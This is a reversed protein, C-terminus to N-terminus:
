GDRWGYGGLEFVRRGNADFRVVRHAAAEAVFVNGFPDVSVATPDRFGRGKEDVALSLDHRAVFGESPADAAPANETSSAAGSPKGARTSDAPSPTQARSGACGSALLAALVLALLARSM